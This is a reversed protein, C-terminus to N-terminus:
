PILHHAIDVLKEVQWRLVIITNEAANKENVLREIKAELAKMTHEEKPTM